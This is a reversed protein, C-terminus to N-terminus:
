YYQDDYYLDGKFRELLVESLPFNESVSAIFFSPNQLFFKILRKQETTLSKALLKDVVSLGRNLRSLTTPPSPILANKKDSESM